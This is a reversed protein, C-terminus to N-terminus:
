GFSIKCIFLFAIASASTNIIAIPPAKAAGRTTEVPVTVSTVAVKFATM